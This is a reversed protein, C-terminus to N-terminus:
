WLRCLQIRDFHTTQLQWHHFEDDDGGTYPILDDDDNIKDDLENLGPRGTLQSVLSAENASNIWKRYITYLSEKKVDNARFLKLIDESYMVCNQSICEM